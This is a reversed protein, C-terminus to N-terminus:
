QTVLFLIDGENGTPPLGEAQTRILVIRQFRADQEAPSYWLNLIEEIRQALAMMDQPVDAIENPEPWPLLHTTTKGM